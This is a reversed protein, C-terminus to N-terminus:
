GAVLLLGTFLSTIKGWAIMKLQGRTQAGVPAPAARLDYALRPSEEM